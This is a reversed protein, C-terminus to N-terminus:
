PSGDGAHPAAVDIGWVKLIPGLVYPSGPETEIAPEGVVIGDDTREFLATM